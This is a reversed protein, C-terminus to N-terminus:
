RRVLSLSGSSKAETTAERSSGTSRHTRLKESDGEKDRGGAPSGGFGWCGDHRWVWPRRLGSTWWPSSRAVRDVTGPGPGYIKEMPFVIGSESYGTFKEGLGRNKMYIKGHDRCM